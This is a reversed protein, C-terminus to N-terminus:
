SFVLGFHSKPIFCLWCFMSNISSIVHTDSVKETTGPQHSAETPALVPQHAPPQSAASVANILAAMKHRTEQQQAVLERQEKEM